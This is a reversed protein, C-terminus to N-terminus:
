EVTVGGDGYVTMLTRIVPHDDYSKSLVALSSDVRMAISQRPNTAMFHAFWPGVFRIDLPWPAAVVCDVGQRLLSAVLGRTEQTFAQRDIQGSHCVLLVVCRTEALHEAIEDPTFNQKRDTIHTFTELLGRAGHSAIVVLERNACDKPTQGQDIEFEHSELLSNLCERLELLTKDDVNPGGLWAARGKQSNVRNSRRAALWVASPSVSIASSVGHTKAALAFTFGFLDSDPVVIVHEAEIKNFPNLTCLSKEVKEASPKLIHRDWLWVDYDKPYMKHWTVLEEIDWDKQSRMQPKQSENATFICTCLRRGSDLGVLIMAEGPMLQSQWLTPDYDALATFSLLGTEGAGGRQLKAADLVSEPSANAAIKEALWSASKYNGSLAGAEKRHIETLALGPQAIISHALGFQTIDGLNTAQGLARHGPVVAPRIQHTVDVSFRAKGLTSLLGRLSGVTETGLGAMETLQSRQPEPINPLHKKLAEGFAAPITEGLHGLLIIANVVLSLLPAIDSDDTETDLLHIADEGLKKLGSANPSSNLEALRASLEMQRLQVLRFKLHPYKSVVTTEAGIADMASPHVHLERFVQAVLRLVDATLGPHAPARIIGLCAYVVCNLAMLPNHSRLWVDGYAVWAISRRWDEDKTQSAPLVLLMTEAFDRARQVEGAAALRCLLFSVAQLDSHPDALVRSSLIVWHVIMLAEDWERKELEFGLLRGLTAVFRPTIKARIETPIEGYGIVFNAGGSITGFLLRLIEIVEDGDKEVDCPQELSDISVPFEIPLMQVIRDVEQQLLGIAGPIASTEALESELIREVAFRSPLDGPHQACYTFLEHLEEQISDLDLPPDEDKVTQAWLEMSAPFWFADSDTLKAYRRAESVNGRRLFDKAILWLGDDYRGMSKVEKLFLEPNPLDAMWFRAAAIRYDDGSKRAIHLCSKFDDQEVAGWWQQEQTFSHSPYWIELQARLKGVLDDRHLRQAISLSTRIAEFNSAGDSMGKELLREADAAEGALLATQSLGLLAVGVSQAEIASLHPKLEAFAQHHLGAVSVLMSRMQARNIIDLTSSEVAKLASVLGESKFKDGVERWTRFFETERSTHQPAYIWLNPSASVEAPLGDPAAEGGCLLLVQLNSKEAIKAVRVSLEFIHELAVFSAIQMKVMLDQPARTFLTTPSEIQAFRLLEVGLVVVQSGAPLFEMRKCLKESDFSDLSGWECSGTAEKSSFVFTQGDPTPPSKQSWASAWEIGPLDQHFVLDVEGIRAHDSQNWFDCISGWWGSPGATPDDAALRISSIM